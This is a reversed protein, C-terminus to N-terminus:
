SLRVASSKPVVVVGVDVAYAIALADSLKVCNILAM